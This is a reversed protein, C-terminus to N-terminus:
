EWPKYNKDVYDMWIELIQEKTYQPFLYSLLHSMDFWNMNTKDAKTWKKQWDRLYRDAAELIPELEDQNM